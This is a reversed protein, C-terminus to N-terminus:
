DIYITIITDLYKESLIFAEEYSKDKSEESLSNRFRNSFIQEIIIIKCLM